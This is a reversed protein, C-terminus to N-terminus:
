GLGMVSINRRTFDQLSPLLHTTDLPTSGADLQVNDATKDPPTEGSQTDTEKAAQSGTVARSPGSRTSSPSPSILRLEPCPRGELIDSMQAHRMSIVSQAM